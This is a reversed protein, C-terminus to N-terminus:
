CCWEGGVVRTRSTAPRWPLKSCVDATQIEFCLTSETVCSFRSFFLLYILRSAEAASAATCVYAIAVSGLPATFRPRPRPPPTPTQGPRRGTLRCTCPAGRSTAPSPSSCSPSCRSSRSLSRARACEGALGAAQMIFSSARPPPTEPKAKVISPRLPHSDLPLDM